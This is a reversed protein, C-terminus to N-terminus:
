RGSTLQRYRFLYWTVFTGPVLFVLLFLLGIGSAKNFKGIEVYLLIINGIFDVNGGGIMKPTVFFGIALAFTFSCALMAARYTQPLVVTLLIRSDSVGLTRAADIQEQRISAVGQLLIFFSLPVFISTMVVVVAAPTYLFNKGFLLLNTVSNVTENSFLGIWSYNRSLLGMLLPLVTLVILVKQSLGSSFRWLLVAPYAAVVSMLSCLLSLMFTRFFLVGLSLNWPISLGELVLLDLIWWTMPIWYFIGVVSALLYGNRHVAISRIFYNMSKEM